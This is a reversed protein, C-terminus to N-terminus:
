QLTHTEGVREIGRGGQYGRCTVLCEAYQSYFGIVVSYRFPDLYFKTIYKFVM